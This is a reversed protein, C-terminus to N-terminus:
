GPTTEVHEDNPTNGGPPPAPILIEDLEVFVWVTTGCDGCIVIVVGMVAVCDTGEGGRRYADPIKKTFVTGFGSVASSSANAVQLLM